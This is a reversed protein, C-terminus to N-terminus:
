KFVRLYILVVLVANFVNNKDEGDRQFEGVLM